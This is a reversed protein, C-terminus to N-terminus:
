SRDRGPRAHAPRGERSRPIRPPLLCLGTFALFAAVLLLVACAFLLLEFRWSSGPAAPRRISGQVGKFFDNPTVNLLQSFQAMRSGSIRNSGKEYKQVQQFTLKVAAAIQEQSLNKQLRFARLNRGIIKDVAQEDPRDKKTM